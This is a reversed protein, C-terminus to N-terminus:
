APKWPWAEPNELTFRQTRELHRSFTTDNPGVNSLISGKM